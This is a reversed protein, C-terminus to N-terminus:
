FMFDISSFIVYKGNKPTSPPIGKHLSCSSFYILSFVIFVVFQETTSNDKLMIARTKCSKIDDIVEILKRKMATFTIPYHMISDMM